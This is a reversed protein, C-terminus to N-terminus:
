AILGFALPFALDAVWTPIGAGIEGGGARHVQVLVMGGVALLTSVMAAVAASFVAAVRRSTDGPWLTDTSLALLKGHRAAIAAGVMGVILTLHYTFPAGGPIGTSFLRRLVVEALPLIMIGIAAM